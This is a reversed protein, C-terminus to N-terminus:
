FPSPPIRVRPYGLYNGIKFTAKPLSPSPLNLAFGM